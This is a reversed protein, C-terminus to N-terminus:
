YWNSFHKTALKWTALTANLDHMKQQDPVFTKETKSYKLLDDQTWIKHNVGALFVAGMVTMDPSSAREVVCGTIDSLVQCIFDNKSM